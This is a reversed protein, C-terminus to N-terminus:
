LTMGSQYQFSKAFKKIYGSLVIYDEYTTSRADNNWYDYLPEVMHDPDYYASAADEDIRNNGEQTSATFKVSVTGQAYQGDYSPDTSVAARAKAIIEDYYDPHNATTIQLSPAHAHTFNGTPDARMTFQIESLDPKGTNKILGAQVGSSLFFFISLLLIIAFLTIKM